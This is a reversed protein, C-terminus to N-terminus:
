AAELLFDSEELLFDAEKECIWRETQRPARKLIFQWRLEEVLDRPARQPGAIVNQYAAQATAIDGLAGFVHLRIVNTQPASVSTPVLEIQQRAEEYRRQQLLAVSLARRFYTRSKALPCHTVGHELILASQEFEGLRLLIMGRIHFGIWDQAAESVEEPLGVLADEYRGLAALVCSRGSKAVVNEPHAQCVVEYAALAETLKGMAKLVDARGTQAVVNESHAQCVVEYAALAETLKGMAKLVDARGTQAVVDEPHAQCVVEYAALAETLKGMAKLVDARGTQAVVDEPHAQCVVEYAALAETLKGMAKLVEARGNQAVVDEPHAQCVVEYAALAETLKGMAKLVDARGTQAVVNESHAQCVVEYAALAETLKGMAKLVDARGTQAVVNEPHAQCVVEYAALAETLKGMAKFVEARGTQAVVDEPHARRVEEYAQLAEPLKGMAKLVDARGNQAVSKTNLEGFSYAQAYAELAKEFRGTVLLADGYQAWAWGDDPKVQVSREALALQLQSLGRQKAEGALDCLSKALHEPRGYEQQHEILADIFDQARALDRRDLAELIADKQRIVRNLADKAKVQKQKRPSRAARQEQEARLPARAIQQEARLPKTWGQLVERAHPMVRIPSRQLAEVLFLSANNAAHANVLDKFLGAYVAVHHFQQREQPTSFQSTPIQAWAQSVASIAPQREALRRWFDRLSPLPPNDCLRQAGALDAAAPLPEAYLILELYNGVAPNGLLEELAEATERRAAESLEGDLTLLALDLACVCDYDHQLEQLAQEHSTNKLQRVSAADAFLLRLEAPHRPTLQQPAGIDFSWFAPGDTLVAIGAKGCILANM